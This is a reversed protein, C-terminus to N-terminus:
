MWDLADGSRDKTQNKAARTARIPHAVNTRWTQRTQRAQDLRNRVRQSRPTSNTQGREAQRQAIRQPMFVPAMVVAKGADGVRRAGTRMREDAAHSANVVGRARQPVKGVEARTRQVGHLTRAQVASGVAVRNTACVGPNAVIDGGGKGTAARSFM